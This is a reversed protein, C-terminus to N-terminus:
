VVGPRAPWESQSVADELATLAWNLDDTLDYLLPLEPLQDTSSVPKVLDAIQARKSSLFERVATTRTARSADPDVALLSVGGPVTEGQLWRSLLRVGSAAGPPAAVMPSDDWLMRLTQYPWLSSLDPTSGANAIALLMSELVAPLLDEPHTQLWHSSTVLPHPLSLWTSRTESYVRIPDGTLDLHGTLQGLFWGTVMARREDASCPLAGTLPRSRRWKWFPERSFVDTASRWQTRAPELVSEFCIPAYNPYSGFIQIRRVPLDDLAEDYRGLVREHDVQTDAVIRDRLRKAVPLGAFPIASFKYQYQVPVNHMERVVHDNPQSLPLALQLAEVFCDTLRAQRERQDAASEANAPTLYERLSEDCFNKFSSQPRDVFLRARSRIEATTAHVTFTAPGPTLPQGTHPDHDLMQPRSARGLEILEGPLESGGVSEWHGSIIATKIDELSDESGRSGPIATLVHENFAKHYDASTTLLVESTAQDFRVPVREFTPWESYENTELVALGVGRGTLKVAVDLDTFARTLAQSLPALFTEGLDDWIQALLGCARGWLRTSLRSTASRTVADLVAQGNPVARKLQGLLGETKDDLRDPSTDAFRKEAIRAHSSIAVLHKGIQEVLQHAYPLGMRSAGASIQSLIRATLAQHYDFAWQYVELEGHEALRRAQGSLQQRVQAAWTAGDAAIPGPLHPVLVETVIARARVKVASKEWGAVSDFWEYFDGEGSWLQLSKLLYPFQAGAREQVQEQSSARSDKREHGRVLRDVSERALRQAAYEAYRDRGMDVSAFGMSGWVLQSAESGWGFRDHRFTLGETNGLDYSVFDGMASPSMMLATLGRSLGRYITISRGDGFRASRGAMGSMSGIPFVRAFPVPSQIDSAGFASWLRGDSLAAAKTQSAIIEGLMALSNANVGARDAEPLYSFA